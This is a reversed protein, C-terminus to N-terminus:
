GRRRGEGRELLQTRRVEGRRANSRWGGEGGCMDGRRRWPVVTADMEGRRMAVRAAVRAQVGDAAM